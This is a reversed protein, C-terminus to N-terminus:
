LFTEDGRIHLSQKPSPKMFSKPYDNRSVKVEEFKKPVQPTESAVIEAAPFRRKEKFANWLLDPHKFSEKMKLSFEGFNNRTYNV